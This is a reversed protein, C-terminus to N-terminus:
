DMLRTLRWRHQRMQHFLQFPSGTIGVRRYQKLCFVVLTTSNIASIRSVVGVDMLGQLHDSFSGVEVPAPNIGDVTHFFPNSSCSPNVKAFFLPNSISSGDAAMCPVDRKEDVLHHPIQRPPLIILCENRYLCARVCTEEKPGWSWVSLLKLAAASLFHEM